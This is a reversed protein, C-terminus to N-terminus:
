TSVSTDSLKARVQTADPHDLDTLMALLQHAYAHRLDAVIRRQWGRFALRHIMRRAMRPRTMIQRALHLARPLLDERSVVENILGLSQAQAAPIREGTYVIQNARPWWNDSGGTQACAAAATARTSMGGDNM